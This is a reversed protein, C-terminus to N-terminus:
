PSMEFNLRLQDTKDRAPFTLADLGVRMCDILGPDSPEALQPESHVAGREDVYLMFELKAPKGARATESGDYCRKKLQEVPAFARDTEAATYPAPGTDNWASTCATIALAFCALLPLSRTM